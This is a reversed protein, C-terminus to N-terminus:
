IIIYIIFNNEMIMINDNYLTVSSINTNKLAALYEISANLNEAKADLYLSIRPTNLYDKDSHRLIIKNNVDNNLIAYFM